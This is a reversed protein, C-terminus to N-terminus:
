PESVVLVTNLHDPAIADLTRYRPGRDSRTDREIPIGCIPKRIAQQIRDRSLRQHVSVDVLDGDGRM